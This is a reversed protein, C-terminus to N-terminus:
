QHGGSPEEYLPDMDVNTFGWFYALNRAAEPSTQLATHGKPFLEAYFAIARALVHVCTQLAVLGLMRQDEISQAQGMQMSSIYSTHAYGCFHSYVNQFYKKSFGARVAEDTWSWGVRWDGKMLRKVQDPSYSGLFPSSVIEAIQDAAQLRAVKLVERAQDTSPHLKLRDMLGGLRWVGHRFKRLTPDQSQFIWHFVIFTELCARALITASSHDVFVVQSGEPFDLQTPDLILRVSCAQKFLKVALIQADNM